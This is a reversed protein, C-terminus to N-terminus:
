AQHPRSNAQARGLAVIVSGIALAVVGAVVIIEISRDTIQIM